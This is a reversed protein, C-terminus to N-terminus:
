KLVPPPALSPLSAAKRRIKNKKKALLQIIDLDGAENRIVTLEIMITMLMKPTMPLESVMAASTLDGM